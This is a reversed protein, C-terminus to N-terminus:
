CTDAKWWRIMQFCDRVIIINSILYNITHLDVRWKNCEHHENSRIWREQQQQQRIWEMRAENENSSTMDSTIWFSKEIQNLNMLIDIVNVRDSAAIRECGFGTRTEFHKWSLSRRKTCQQLPIAPARALSRASHLKTTLHCLFATM